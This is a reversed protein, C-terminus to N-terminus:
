RARTARTCRGAPSGPLVAAASSGDVSLFDTGAQGEIIDNGDGPAWRATDLGGGLLLVDVGPGGSVVDQGPSGILLDKGPGGLLFPQTKDKIMTSADIQDDGEGGDIVLKQGPDTTDIAVTAPLGTVVHGTGAPDVRIAD